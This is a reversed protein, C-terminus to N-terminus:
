VFNWYSLVLEEPLVLHKVANNQPFGMTQLPLSVRWMICISTPRAM